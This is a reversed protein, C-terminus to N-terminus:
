AEKKWGYKNMLAEAGWTILTFGGITVAYTILAFLWAPLSHFFPRNVQYFYNGGVLHNVVLVVAFYVTFGICSKKCAHWSPRWDFAIVAYVPILITMLHNIMYTLGILHLFHQQDMPYFLSALAYISFYAIVDVFRKDKKVLFFITLLSSIRCLHLPLGDTILKDTFVAYWVYMAVQQFLLFGLLVKAIIDRKERVGKRYRVFLAITLACVVLYAIHAFSFIGVRPADEALFYRWDLIGM